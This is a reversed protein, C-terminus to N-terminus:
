VIRSTVGAPTTVVSAPRAPLEPVAFPIALQGLSKVRLDQGFHYYRAEIGTSIAGPEPVYQASVPGALTFTAVALSLAKARASM